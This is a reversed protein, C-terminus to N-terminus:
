GSKNKTLEMMQCDSCRLLMPQLQVHIAHECSAHWQMLLRELQLKPVYNNSGAICACYGVSCFCDGIIVDRLM